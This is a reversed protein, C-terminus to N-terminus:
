LLSPVFVLLVGNILPLIKKKVGPTYNKKVRIKGRGYWFEPNKFFFISFFNSFFFIQIKKIKKKVGPTYNKKVRIKGRGYWFEPNKFFFYKFFFIKKSIKQIKKSKKKLM